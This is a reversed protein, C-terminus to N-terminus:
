PESTAQERKEDMLGQHHIRAIQWMYTKTGLGYSNNVARELHFQAEVKNAEVMELYIGVYLHAHFLVRQEYEGGFEAANIKSFVERPKSNGAFLDYLWPYPPRDKQDYTLLNQRAREIGLDKAQSMFRWIGNERDVSDYRHYIEFQRAALAFERLYFYVIGLRWHSIESSPDMEIMKEYDKRAGAFDGLFTRLDGRKSYLSVLQPNKGLESGLSDEWALFEARQRGEKEASWIEASAFSASSLFLLPLLQIIM